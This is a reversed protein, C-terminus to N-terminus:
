EIIDIFRNTKLFLWIANVTLIEIFHYFINKGKTKEQKLCGYFYDHM